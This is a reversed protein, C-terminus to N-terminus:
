FHFVVGASIRVNSGAGYSAFSTHIWDGQIIRISMSKKYKLDVGGGLMAVLGSASGVTTCPVGPSCASGAGTGGGILAHVFAKTNGQSSFYYVPGFTFSYIHMHYKVSQFTGAVGENVTGGGYSGSFDGSVGISDNIHYTYTADWGPANVSVETNNQSGQAVFPDFTHVSGFHAFQFGGFLEQQASDQAMLPASLFLLFALWLLAKQM